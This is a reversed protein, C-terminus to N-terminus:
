KRQAEEDDILAHAVREAVARPGLEAPAERLASAISDLFADYLKDDHTLAHRVIKRAVLLTYPTIQIDLKMWKM